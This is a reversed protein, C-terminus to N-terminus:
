SYGTKCTFRPLAFRRRHLTPPKKVAVPRRDPRHAATTAQTIARLSRSNKRVNPRSHSKPPRKSLTTAAAERSPGPKHDRRQLIGIAAVLRPPPGLPPVHPPAVCPCSWPGAPCHRWLRPPERTTQPIPPQLPLRSCPHPRM